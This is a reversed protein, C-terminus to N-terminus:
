IAAALSAGSQVEPAADEENINESELHVEWTHYNESWIIAGMSLLTFFIIYLGAYLCGMYENLDALYTEVDFMTSVFLAMGLNYSIAMLSNRISAIPCWFMAWFLFSPTGLSCISVLVQFVSVVAFNSSLGIVLYCIFMTAVCLSSTVKFYTYLGVKDAIFGSCAFFVISIASSVLQMDYSYPDTLSAISSDLYIPIWVVNSYYILAPSLYVLFLVFFEVFYTTFVAKLPNELITGEEEMEDFAKSNPMLWRM